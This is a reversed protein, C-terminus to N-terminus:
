TRVAIRRISIEQATSALLRGARDFVKGHVLGRGDATWPSETAYLLWDDVRVARHFWISHNLTVVAIGDLGSPRFHMAGATGALWFDSMCAFLCQQDLPDAVADGSPMRFWYNRIPLRLDGFFVQELDPLRLEIPFHTGYAAVMAAPLRDPNRTIFDGISELVEPPPVVPAAAHLHSPGDEPDHFACLMDFIPKGAQSALVRRSAFRRGDRTPEVVYDIPLAPDGARLFHASLNHAPWDAALTRRAAALGQAMPQGGFIAGGRGNDLNHLNRFTREGASELALLDRAGVSFSSTVM